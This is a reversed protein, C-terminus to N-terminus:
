SEPTQFGLTVPLAENRRFIFCKTEEVELLEDLSAVVLDHEQLMEPYRSVAREIRSSRRVPTILKMDQVEPMGNIRPIPGIQLKIGPYDHKEAKAIRPTATVQEREKPSLFSKVSEMKKALEEVSTRSTEAVLSDSTIGETTRNSDQLINLVVKRLEQIPTAGNKIAEEYLGIVDFTGKSALLKAKCIWFKAFKEAEPISSLINLIEDSPVGGEILNLCETLTNNIKSSLELQAKKEEEEKEISKWFSINMEKIVKRKTKLEMPPRKYTKGKSKQWEELQKRRDEATAKKKINPNTQTGNVTTVDAQTKPATKNLFHNQPVAKKLKSDLTQAKQQFGNNNHKNGSTGNPRISPTSPIASDFRGVTLNPRQSIAKSKQLVCSTQPICLQNSKQDQKINPHRNNYEGQLLSPYTRPKTHKVRQETVPYSRIKTENPREYKGRNVKIDKINKVVPKKSSQVKSLTQIFHSPVTRSHKVGPRALGAGRSLQQSKVPFTRSQTEGVFQKNVRDKLVASNVSSKGLAQKPVLSNKTQNYSDTKPKSRTCLKPDPKREPETLIDLLNEKNTEKIFNDLSENEVHTNNMSDICKANEQDTLQQKTTKLQEINLSGVPKRSLEGTISSGAERQQFSKSSPKSHPNSSVCESTLRKGLLKPPELKPKQSGTTNPPRPQLKISISRKPKVPLVVHNTVDNKPRITSKSPPPNQCNNKSKLYPKTNQSKLKGKAALYEQLKRQREEVAAAATPGTGVM